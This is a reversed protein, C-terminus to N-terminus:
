DFMYLENNAISIISPLHVHKKNNPAISNDPQTRIHKQTERIQRLNVKSSEFLEMLSSDDKPLVYKILKFESLKWDTQFVSYVNAGKFKVKIHYNGGKIQKTHSIKIWDIIEHIAKKLEDFDADLIEKKADVEFRGVVNAVKKVMDKANSESIKQELFKVTDSVEKKQTELKTIRNKIEENSKIDTDLLLDYGNKLRKEIATLKAEEARLKEDLLKSKDTNTKIVDFHKKFDKFVFLYKIIFSELRPISIGRNDCTAKPYRKEACKYANDNGKLRKRGRYESGCKDCYIIGNLLYHYEDKRGVNKKNVALNKQVKEWIKPDVIQPVESVILEAKVRKKVSAGNIYELKDEHRNWERVGIYIKNRLMDSIVNGRWIVESKDFYKISNTYTDKRKMKGTFNKSFKTPIGEDNFINAITYAGNGELSLQFMRRVNRAEEEDIVYNNKEDRQFGYPKLGHTKGEKAKRANALRVKKSTIESYYSNVVSMLKAFMRNTPSDLDFYLGGPYFRIENNLCEAVFFEWTRSNREIRSQDICYVHTIVKKKIDRLLDSFGDRISEDLTGSIGDDIYFQHAIGLAKACAAGAEKQNKITFHDTRNKSTRCYIGLM